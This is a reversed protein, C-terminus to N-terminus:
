PRARDALPLKPPEPLRLSQRTAILKQRGSLQQRASPSLARAATAPWGLARAAFGLPFRHSPRASHLIIHVRFM